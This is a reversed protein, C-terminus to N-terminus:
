ASRTGVVHVARVQVYPAVEMTILDTTAIERAEPVAEIQAVPEVTAAIPVDISEPSVTPRQLPRRGSVALSTYLVLCLCAVVSVVLILWVVNYDSRVYFLLMIFILLTMCLSTVCLSTKDVEMAM